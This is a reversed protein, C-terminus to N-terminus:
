IERNGCMVSLSPIPHFGSIDITLDNQLIDVIVNQRVIGPYVPLLQVLDHLDNQVRDTGGPFGDANGAVIKRRLYDLGPEQLQVTGMDLVDHGAHLLIGGPNAIDLFIQQGGQVVGSKGNAAVIGRQHLMVQGPVLLPPQFLHLLFDGALGDDQDHVACFHTLLHQFSTDQM